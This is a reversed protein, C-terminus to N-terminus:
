KKKPLKEIASFDFWRIKTLENDSTKRDVKLCDLIFWEISNSYIRISDSQLCAYSVPQISAVHYVVVLWWGYKRAEFVYGIACYGDHEFPWFYDICTRKLVGKIDKLNCKWM